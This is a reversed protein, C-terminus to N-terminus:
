DEKAFKALKHAWQEFARDADQWLGARTRGDNLNSIFEDSVEALTAGDESFVATMAAGGAYVSRFSVSTDRNYDALTPRSSELKTLTAQVTLVGSGPADALSFSEGFEEVLEDYFDAAKRAADEDRVARDGYGSRDFRVVNLDLNAQVPAIYVSDFSSLKRGETLTESDFSGALAAGASFMAAALAGVGLGYRLFAM